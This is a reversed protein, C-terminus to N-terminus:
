SVTALSAFVSLHSTIFLFNTPSTLYANYDIKIQDGSITKTYGWYQPNGVFYGADAFQSLKGIVVGDIKGLLTNSMAKGVFSDEIASRLDKSIMLAIRMMSFENQQLLNGQYTNIGRANIFKGSRTTIGCSVGGKILTEANAITLNTEWALVDVVKNTVPEQLSLTTVMGLIKAAYYAPSWTRTKTYDNFDWHTFGPYALMGADSTLDVARAIAQVVTEGAAGGLIFQRENKGTVANMSECHTKILAHVANDEVSSGILQVDELELATLSIGWETATYSGDVAGTFYVWSAENDPIGRTAAASYYIAEVWGSQNLVDIIAQLDSHADYATSLIDQSTISDLETSADTKVSTLITCTYNSQDNIYDVINEITSYSSFLVTLDEGGPGGTVTTTLQTKTINMVAPTGAGTYQIQLSAKEINDTIEAPNDQFQITLKKGSITGSELKTKVQNTHLGYDKTTATIMPNASESYSHVAQTGPNVRWALILQPVLGGGPSFAHRVADLLPGSKLISEADAANGFALLTNPKGGRSDGMIIGNGISVLGGSGRVFNIRSFAGPLYHQSSKGGSSFTAPSVGM